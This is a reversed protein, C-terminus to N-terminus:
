FLGKRRYINYFFFFSLIIGIIWRVMLLDMLFVSSVVFISVIIIGPLFDLIKYHYSFSLVKSSIFEHFTFLLIHALLTAVGAGQIGWKPIMFYNLGINALAAGITGLAIMYTARHFFEFNVPFSYLFIFYNSLVFMPLLPIAGWFSSPVFIKIVEPAWFTFVLLIISYNFIYNKTRDKIRKVENRRLDEYYFPVWTNNLSNWIVTLVGSFIIMFSYIGTETNGAMHQLMIRDSQGLVIQSLGHFILPISIPLCFKVYKGVFRFDGQYGFYIFIGISVMVLPIVSGYMKGLYLQDSSFWFLTLFLSLGITSFATVTNIFFSNKAKKLFVFAISSFALIFTGISQISMLALSINSLLLYNSLQQFFIIGLLLFFFSSFIGTMLITFLYRRIEHEELWAVATGISGQVQLGFIVSFIGVWTTYVSLIGYQSPGLLRTFIPISFFSIGNLLVPGLINYIANKNELRM